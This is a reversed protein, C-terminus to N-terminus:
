EALLKYPNFCPSHEVGEEYVRDYTETKLLALGIWAHEAEHVNLGHYQHNRNM